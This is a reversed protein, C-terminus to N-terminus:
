RRPAARRVSGMDGIMSITAGRVGRSAARKPAWRRTATPMSPTATPREINMPRPGVGSDRVHEEAKMGNMRPMASVIDGIVADIMDATGGRRAPAPDAIFSAM